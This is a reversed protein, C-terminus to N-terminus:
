EVGHRQRDARIADALADAVDGLGKVKGTIELLTRRAAGKSVLKIRKVGGDDNYEVSEVSNKLTAPWDRPNLPTGREDLMESVDARADMAVRALVENGAMELSGWHAALRERLYAVIKPHRLLRSGGVACTATSAKTHSARYAETANQNNALYTAAFLRQPATLGHRSM